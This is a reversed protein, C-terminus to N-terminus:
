RARTKKDMEAVFRLCFGCIRALRFIPCSPM